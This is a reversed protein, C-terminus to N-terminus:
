TQQDCITSSMEGPINETQAGLRIHHMGGTLSWMDYCLVYNNHIETVKLIFGFNLIKETQAGLGNDM